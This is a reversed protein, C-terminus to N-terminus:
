PRPKKKAFELYRKVADVLASAQAQINANITEVSVVTRGATFNARQDEAITTAAFIKTALTYIDEIVYEMPEHVFKFFKHFHKAGVLCRHIANLTYAYYKKLVPDRTNKDIGLAIMPDAPDFCSFGVDHIDKALDFDVFKDFETQSTPAITTAADYAGRNDIRAQEALMQSRRIKAVRVKDEERLASLDHVGGRTRRHHARGGVVVGGTKRRHHRGDGHLDRDTAYEKYLDYLRQEPMM